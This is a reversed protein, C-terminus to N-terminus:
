SRITGLRFDQTGRERIFCHESEVGLHGVLSQYRSLKISKQVRVTCKFHIRAKLRELEEDFQTISTCKVRDVFTEEDDRFITGIFRM